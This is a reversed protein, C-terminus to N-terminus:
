DIFLEQLIWNYRDPESLEKQVIKESSFGDNDDRVFRTQYSSYELTRTSSIIMTYWHFSKYRRYLINKDISNLAKECYRRQYLRLRELPDERKYQWWSVTTSNILIRNPSSSYRFHYVIYPITLQIYIPFIYYIIIIM